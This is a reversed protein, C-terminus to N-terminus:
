NNEVRLIRNKVTIVKDKVVVRAICFENVIAVSLATYEDFTLEGSEFLNKVIKSSIVNYNKSKDDWGVVDMLMENETKYEEVKASLIEIVKLMEKVEEM